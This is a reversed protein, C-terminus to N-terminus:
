NVRFYAYTSGTVLLGILEVIFTGNPMLPQATTAGVNTLSYVFQSGDGIFSITTAVTGGVRRFMIKQGVNAATITPLTITFATAGASVSYTEYIIASLTTLTSASTIVSGYAKNVYQNNIANLGTFTNDANELPINASLAADPITAASISAGSMVPPSSFTKIGAVTQNGSLACYGNAVQTQGITGSSISAGSMVPPSSFTKIGAVTQASSATVYGNLVQAQQITANVLSSGSISTTAISSGSMVPASSFTKIGAVTQNGSLACYGDAVQTQGITSASINAGSMTPPNTFTTSAFNNTLTASANGFALSSAHTDYWTAAVAPDAPTIWNTRLGGASNIQIFSTGGAVYIFGDGYGSTGIGISYGNDVLMNGRVVFTANVYVANFIPNVVLMEYLASPGANFMNQQSAGGTDYAVIFAGDSVAPINMFVGTRNGGVSGVYKFGVDLLPETYGTLKFSNVDSATATFTNRESWSNTSTLAGFKGDAYTKTILQTSTTPTLTSTPLSTNYANTGTWTNNASLVSSGYNADAYAKTILQNSTTPTLTSTPLSTNFTNTSTWANASALAGFKGDAYTKTILQNSTTPTLTSTPLFTNFTNTGAWVNAADLINQYFASFAQDSFVTSVVTWTQTSAETAVVTYSTPTDLSTYSNNDLILNSYAGNQYILAASGISNRVRAPYNYPYVPLGGCSITFQGGINASTITPLYLTIQNIANVTTSPMILIVEASGWTINYSVPNTTIFTTQQVGSKNSLNLTGFTNTGTWTNNASLLGSGAYTADAYAKTILQTSTTPTLTSTPLSSNFTNTGTWANNFGLIQNFMSSQFATATVTWGNTTTNTAVFEYATPYNSYSGSGNDIGLISFTSQNYYLDGFSSAYIDIPYKRGAIPLGGLAITFKGGKNATIDISPLTIIIRGSGNVTNSPVVILTDPDGWNIQYSAPNTTIFTANQLGFRNAVKLTSFTNTGTWTNNASLLGSGTYTADAYAKTILQTSTTPTQTSTPLSTNFSNTGTWVNNSSLLGTGGYTADAYAKTILQTSTTPTQTSTPLSTNFTTTGAVNVNGNVDLAYSSSALKNVGLSKITTDSQLETNGNVLLSVSQGYSGTASNAANINTSVFRNVTWLSFSM